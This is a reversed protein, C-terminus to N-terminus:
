KKEDAKLEKVTIIRREPVEVGKVVKLTGKVIVAKGNLSRALEILKKDKGLDLEYTGKPTEIITGTTEGGIAFVPHKLKGKYEMLKKEPEPSKKDDKKPGGDAASALVLAGALVFVVQLM